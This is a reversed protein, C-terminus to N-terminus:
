VTVTSRQENITQPTLLGNVLYCNVIRIIESMNDRPIRKIIVPQVKQVITDEVMRRNIGLKEIVRIDTADIAPLSNTNGDVTVTGIYRSTNVDWDLLPMTPFKEIIPKEVLDLFQIANISPDIIYNPGFTRLAYNQIAESSDLLELVYKAIDQVMAETLGSYACGDNDQAEGIKTMSIHPKGELSEWQLYEQLQILFFEMEKVTNRKRMTELLKSFPTGGGTCFSGWSHGSSSFSGLHSHCYGSRLELPSFSYRKGALGSLEGRAKTFVTYVVLDYITHEVGISNKLTLQPYHLYLVGSSADYWWRNPFYDNFLPTFRDLADPIQKVQVKNSPLIFRSSARGPIELTSYPGIKALITVEIEDELLSKDLRKSGGNENFYQYTMIKDGYIEEIDKLAVVNATIM